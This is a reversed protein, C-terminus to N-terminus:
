ATLKAVGNGATERSLFNGYIFASIEFLPGAGNSGNPVVNFLKDVNLQSSVTGNFGQNGVAKIEYKGESDNAVPNLVRSSVNGVDKFRFDNKRYMYATKEPCYADTYLKNTFAEEFAVGISNKGATAAQREANAANTSQWVNGKLEKALNEFSNDNIVIKIEESRGGARKGKKLLKVLAESNPDVTNTSDAKVFQGALKSVAISRDVGRFDQEIYGTGDGKFWADGTRDAVSPIIDPLGQIGNYANGRRATYLEIYDGAYLTVGTFASEFTVTVSEDDWGTVTAYAGSAALPSKPVATNAAGATAFVIRTGVDMKLAGASTVPITVGTLSSITINSQIQDIVGAEGGYLYTALTRSMGSFCGSMKNALIDMYAKTETDSMLIEPQSVDFLGVLRGCDMTWELNQAGTTKNSSILDYESGFNGGDGYQAAYKIEKGFDAGEKLMDALFQSSQYKDNAVGSEYVTKLLTKMYTDSINNAM